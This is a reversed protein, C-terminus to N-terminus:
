VDAEQALSARVRALSKGLLNQGLWQQPDLIRPDNWALGVGWIRDFPSAEVLVTNGTGILAAALTPNQRFKERCGVTVISERKEIWLAEDFASVERGLKKQARPDPTALIKAATNRDHFLMAKGYMMFQEVCCFSIGRYEFHSEHWNSLADTSGFFLTFGQIERM